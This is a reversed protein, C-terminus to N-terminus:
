ASEEEPVERIEVINSDADRVVRRTMPRPKLEALQERVAVQEARLEAFMGAMADFSRAVTSMDVDLNVQPTPLELKMAEPLVVEPVTLHLDSRFAAPQLEKTETHVVPASAAVESAAVPLLVCRCGFHDGTPPEADGSSFLDDAAIVGDDENGACTEEVADDGATVWAKYGIGGLRMGFNTARHFAGSTEQRGILPARVSAAASFLQDLANVVDSLPAEAGLEALTRDVAGSTTTTIREAALMARSEIEARAAGDLEVTVGAVDALYSYGASWAASIFAVIRKALKRREDAENVAQDKRSNRVHGVVRRRQEEFYSAMDRALRAEHPAVYRAGLGRVASKRETLGKAKPAPLSEPLAPAAPAQPVPAEGAPTVTASFPVLYADADGEDEPAPMEVESAWQGRTLAGATLGANAVTARAVMDQPVPNEFEARLKPDFRPLLMSNIPDQLLDLDASVVWKAFTYEGAEANARNIDDAMGVMSRHVGFMAFVEDRTFEAGALYALDTPNLALPTISEIADGSILTRNGNAVGKFGQEILQRVKRREGPPTDPSLKIWAAPVSHNRFTAIAYDHIYASIDIASAAAAVIGMGYYPNAPNPTKIHVIQEPTFRITAGSGTVYEYGDIFRTKGPVVKMAAPNLGVLAGPVGFNNDAIYWFSNGTLYVQLYTAQRFSSGHLLDNPREWLDLFPHVDLMEDGVYICLEVASAARARVSAAAYVWSSYAALQKRPDDYRPLAQGGSPNTLTLEPAAMAGKTFASGVAGLISM